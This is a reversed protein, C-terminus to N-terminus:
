DKDLTEYRTPTKFKYGGPLHIVENLKISQKIETNSQSNHKLYKPSILDYKNVM